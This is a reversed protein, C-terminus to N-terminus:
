SRKATTKTAHLTELGSAIFCPGNESLLKLASQKSIGEKQLAQQRFEKWIKDIDDRQQGTIM